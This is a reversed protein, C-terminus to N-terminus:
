EAGVAQFGGEEQMEQGDDEFIAGNLVEELSTTYGSTLFDMAKAVRLPTRVLGDRETDEGLRQLMQEVLNEFVPDHSEVTAPEAVTPEHGNNGNHTHGNSYGNHGNHYGNSPIPQIIPAMKM